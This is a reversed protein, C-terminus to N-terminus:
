KVPPMQALKCEHQHIACLYKPLKRKEDSKPKKKPM